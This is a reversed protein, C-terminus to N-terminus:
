DVKEAVVFNLIPLTALDINQKKASETIAPSIDKNTDLLEDGYAIQYEKVSFGCISLLRELEELTFTFSYVDAISGDKLSFKTKNRSDAARIGDSWQRSPSSFIFKGDTKLVRHIECLAAPYCYPDALSAIVIDFYEAPFDLYRASAPNIRANKSDQIMKPSIDAGYYDINQFPIVSSLWGHGVGIELCKTGGPMYKSASETFAKQSLEHFNRTTIRVDDNFEHAVKAYGLANTNDIIHSPPFYHKTMLHSQICLHLHKALIQPTYNMDSKMVIDFSLYDLSAYYFADEELRDPRIQNKDSLSDPFNPPVILVSVLDSIIGRIKEHNRPHVEKIPIKNQMVIEDISKRSMAYMNGYVYDITLIEGREQMCYIDDQNTFVYESNTEQPRRERSTYSIPRVYLGGNNEILANIISTKGVGSPGGALILCPMFHVFDLSDTM